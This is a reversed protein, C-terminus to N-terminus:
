VTKGKVKIEVQNSGMEVLENIRESLSEGKKLSKIIDTYMNRYQKPVYLAISTYSGVKKM